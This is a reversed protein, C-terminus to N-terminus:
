KAHYKEGWVLEYVENIANRLTHKPLDTTERLIRLAQKRSIHQGAAKNDTLLKLAVAKAARKNQIQQEAQWEKRKQIIKKSIIPFHYELYGKSTGVARAISVLTSPNQTVNGDVMTLLYKLIKERNHSRVRKEPLLDTPLQDTWSTCLVGTTQSYEGLYLDSLKMGLKYAIQRATNLTVQKSGKLVSEFDKVTLYTDSNTDYDNYIINDLHKSIVNKVDDLLYFENPNKAIVDILELLDAGQLEWSNGVQEMNVSFGLPKGCEICLGCKNMYALSNQASNCEPCKSILPVRHIHCHTISLMHWALKFYGDDGSLNFEQMCIPCWQMDHVFVSSARYVGGHLSIFTSSRLDHRGTAHELIELAEFTTRTPRVYENLNSITYIKPKDITCPVLNKKSWKYVEKMLTQVTVGHQYALNHIYSGLSEVDM